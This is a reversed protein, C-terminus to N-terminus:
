GWLLLVKGQEGNWSLISVLSKDPSVGVADYYEEAGSNLFRISQSNFSVKGEDLLFTSTDNGNTESDISLNLSQGVTVIPFCFILIFKLFNAVM